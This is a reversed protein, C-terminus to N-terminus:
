PAVWGPSWPRGVMLSVLLAANTISRPPHSHPHTSPLLGSILVLLILPLATAAVLAAIGCLGLVGEAACFVLDRPGRGTFQANVVRRLFLMLSGDPPQGPAEQDAAGPFSIADTDKGM